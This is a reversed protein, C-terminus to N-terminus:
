QAAQASTCPATASYWEGNQLLTSSSWSPKKWNRISMPTRMPLLRLRSGSGEFQSLVPKEQLRGTLTIPAAERGMAPLGAGVEVAYAELGTCYRHSGAQRRHPWDLCYLVTAGVHVACTARDQPLQSAQSPSCLLGM